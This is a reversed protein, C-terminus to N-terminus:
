DITDTLFLRPIRFRTIDHNGCWQKLWGVRFDFRRVEYTPVGLDIVIEKIGRNGEEYDIVTNISNAGSPVPTVEDFMVRHKKVRSNNAIQYVFVLFRSSHILEYRQFRITYSKSPDRVDDFLGPFNFVGRGDLVGNYQTYYGSGTGLSHAIGYNDWAPEVSDVTPWSIAQMFHPDYGSISYDQHVYGDQM